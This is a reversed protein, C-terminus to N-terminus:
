HVCSDSRIQVSAAPRASALDPPLHLLHLKQDSPWIAAALAGRLLLSRRSLLLLQQRLVLFQAERAARSCPALLIRGVFAFTARQLLV